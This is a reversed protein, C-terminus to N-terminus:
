KANRGDLAWNIAMQQTNCPFQRDCTLLLLLCLAGLEFGLSIIARCGRVKCKAAAVAAGRAHRDATAWRSNRQYGWRLVVHVM